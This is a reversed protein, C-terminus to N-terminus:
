SCEPTWEPSTQSVEKFFRAFNSISEQLNMLRNKGFYNYIYSHMNDELLKASQRMITTKAYNYESSIRAETIKRCSVFWDRLDSNDIKSLNKSLIKYMCYNIGCISQYRQYLNYWDYEASLSSLYQRSSSSDKCVFAESDWDSFVKVPETKRYKLYSDQLTKAHGWWWDSVEDSIARNWDLAKSDPQVDLYLELVDLKRFSVDLLHDYLYESEPYIDLSQFDGCNWLLYKQCCYSKLSNFARILVDETFLENIYDKAKSEVDGLVLVCDWWVTIEWDEQSTAFIFGSVFFCFLLYVFLRKTLVM